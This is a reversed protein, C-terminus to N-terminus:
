QRRIQIAILDLVIPVDVFMARQFVLAGPSTQMTHNVASRTAHMVTSLANDMIQKAHQQPPLGKTQMIIRLVNEVTQHLQECMLNSQPNKVTTPVPKISNEDLLTRFENGRFEGDNDHIRRNPSSYRSLWVNAFQDM